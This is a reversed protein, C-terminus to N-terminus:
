SVERLPVFAARLQQLRSPGMQDMVRLVLRLSSRVGSCVEVGVRPRVEQTFPGLFLGSFQGECCNVLTWSLFHFM